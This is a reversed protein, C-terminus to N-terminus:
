MRIKISENDVRLIYVGHSLPFNSETGAPLDVSKVLQGGFTYVVARRTRDTALSLIGDATCIRLGPLTLPDNATVMNKHIGEIFVTQDGRVYDIRYTIKDIAPRLTEGRSNKVIPKSQDYAKELLLRFTFSSWAEVMYDGAVPDTVVGEVRPLTVTYHVSPSTGGGGPTDPEDPNDPNDPNMDKHITFRVTVATLPMDFTLTSIAESGALGAWRWSGDLAFADTKTLTLKAALPTQLTVTVATGAEVQYGATASGAVGVGIVKVQIEHSTAGPTEIVLPYSLPDASLPQVDVNVYVAHDPMPFTYTDPTGTESIAIDSQGFAKGVTVVAKKDSPIGSLTITVTEGKNAMPKDVAVTVAPDNQRIKVRNDAGPLAQLYFPFLIFLLLIKWVYSSVTHKLFAMPILVTSILPYKLPLLATKTYSRRADYSPIHKQKLQKYEM